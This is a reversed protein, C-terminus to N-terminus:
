EVLKARFEWTAGDTCDAFLGRICTESVFEIELELGETHWELNVHGHTSPVVSPAPVHSALNQVFAIAASICIPEIPSGDYSDWNPGLKRLNELQNIVEQTNM